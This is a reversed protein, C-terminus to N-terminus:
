NTNVVYSCAYAHFDVASMLCLYLQYHVDQKNTMSKLGASQAVAVSTNTASNCMSWSIDNSLILAIYTAGSLIHMIQTRTDEKFEQLCILM